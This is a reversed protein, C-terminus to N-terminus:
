LNCQQINCSFGKDHSAERKSVASAGGRHEAAWPAGPERGMESCPELAGDRHEHHLLPSKEQQGAPM